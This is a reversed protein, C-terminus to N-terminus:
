EVEYYIEPKTIGPNVRVSGPVITQTNPYESFRAWTKFGNEIAAGIDPRKLQSEIQSKLTKLATKKIADLVWRPKLLGTGRLQGEIKGDIWTLEPNGNKFGILAVLKVDKVSVSGFRSKVVKDQDQIPFDIQVQDSLFKISPTLSQFQNFRLDVLGGGVNLDIDFVQEQVGMYQLSPGPSFKGQLGDITFTTRDLKALATIANLDDASFRIAQTALAQFSLLGFLLIITFFKRM